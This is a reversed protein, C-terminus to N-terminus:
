NQELRTTAVVGHTGTLIWHRKTAEVKLVTGIEPLQSGPILTWIKGSKHKVVAMQDYIGVINYSSVKTRKAKSPNGSKRISGTILEGEYNQREIRVVDRPRYLPDDITSYENFALSEIYQPGSVFLQVAWVASGLAACGFGAYLLQEAKM